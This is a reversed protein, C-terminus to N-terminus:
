FWGFWSMEVEKQRKFRTGYKEEFRELQSQELLDLYDQSEVFQAKLSDFNPHKGRLSDKPLDNYNCLEIKSDQEVAYYVQTPNKKSVSQSVLGM